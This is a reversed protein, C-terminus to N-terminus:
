KAGWLWASADRGHVPVAVERAAPAAEVPTSRYRDRRALVAAADAESQAQRERMADADARAALKMEAMKRLNIQRRAQGSNCRGCFGRAEEKAYLLRSCIACTM